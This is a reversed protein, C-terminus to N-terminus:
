MGLLALSFVNILVNWQGFLFTRIEIAAAGAHCVCHADVVIIVVTALPSVCEAPDNVNRRM